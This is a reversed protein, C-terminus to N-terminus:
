RKQKKLAQNQKEIEKNAREIDSNYKLLYAYFDFIAMKRFYQMKLPDGKALDFLLDNNQQLENYVFNAISKPPETKTQKSNRESFLQAFRARQRNRFAQIKGNAQQQQKHLNGFM